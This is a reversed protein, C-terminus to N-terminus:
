AQILKTQQTAQMKSTMLYQAEAIRVSSHAIQINAIPTIHVAKHEQNTHDQQSVSADQGLEPSWEM